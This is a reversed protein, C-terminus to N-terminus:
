NNAAWQRHLIHGTSYWPVPLKPLPVSGPPSPCFKLDASRNLSLFIHSPQQIQQLVGKKNGAEACPENGLHQLGNDMGNDIVKQLYQNYM